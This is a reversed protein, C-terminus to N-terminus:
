PAATTTYLKSIGHYKYIQSFIVIDKYTYFYVKIRCIYLCCKTENIALTTIDVFSRRLNDRDIQRHLIMTDVLLKGYLQFSDQQNTSINAAM